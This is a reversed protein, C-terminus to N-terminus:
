EPTPAAPMTTETWVDDDDRQAILMQVGQVEFRLTDYDNAHVEIVAVFAGRHRANAEPLGCESCYPDDPAASLLQAFPHGPVPTTTM